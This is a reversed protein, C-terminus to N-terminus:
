YSRIKHDLLLRVMRMSKAKTLFTNPHAKESPKSTFICLRMTHMQTVEGLQPHAHATKPTWSSRIFIWMRCMQTIDGCYTHDHTKEPNSSSWIVEQVRFLHPDKSWQPHAFANKARGFSKNCQVCAHPREKSHIVMHRKLNGALGFLKHMKDGSHTLPLVTGLAIQGLSNLTINM